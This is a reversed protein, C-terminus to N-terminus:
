FSCLALIVKDKKYGYRTENNDELVKNITCGCLVNNEYVGNCRKQCNGRRCPVWGSEPKNPIESALKIITLHKNLLNQRFNGRNIINM